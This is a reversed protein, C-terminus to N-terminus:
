RLALISLGIAVVLLLAGWLLPAASAHGSHPRRRFDLPPPAIRIM